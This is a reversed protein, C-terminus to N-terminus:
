RDETAIRTLEAIDYIHLTKRKLELIREETFQKLVRNLYITTLGLCEAIQAQTLPFDFKETQYRSRYELQQAVNMSFPTESKLVTSLTDQAIHRYRLRDTIEIFFQALRGRADQEAIATARTHLSALYYGTWYQTWDSQEAGAGLLRRMTNAEFWCVTVPTLAKVGYALPRNGIYLLDVAIFDGPVLIHQVYRRGAGVTRFSYAWGSKVTGVLSSPRGEALIARNPEYTRVGIRETQIKNPHDVVTPGYIAFKAIPCANCDFNDVADDSRIRTRRAM